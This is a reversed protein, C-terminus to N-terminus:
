LKENPAYCRTWNCPGHTYRFEGTKLSTVEIPIARKEHFVIVRPDAPVHRASSADWGLFHHLEHRAFAAEMAHPVDPYRPARRPGWPTREYSKAGRSNALNEGHQCRAARQRVTSELFLTRNGYYLANAANDSMKQVVGTVGGSM